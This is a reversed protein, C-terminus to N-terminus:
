RAPAVPKRRGISQTPLDRDFCAIHVTLGSAMVDIIEHNGIELARGPQPRNPCTM